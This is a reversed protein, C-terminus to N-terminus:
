FQFSLIANHESSCSSLQNRFWPSCHSQASQLAKAGLCERFSIRPISCSYQTIQHLGRPFPTASFHCAAKQTSPAVKRNAAQQKHSEPDWMYTAQLVASSHSGCCTATHQGRHPKQWSKHLLLVARLQQSKSYSSELQLYCLCGKEKLQRGLASLRDPHCLPSTQFIPYPLVPATDCGPV